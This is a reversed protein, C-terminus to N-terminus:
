VEIQTMLKIEELVGTVRLCEIMGGEFVCAKGRTHVEITLVESTDIDCGTAKIIQHIVEDFTHVNDNFLIARASREIEIDDLTDEETYTLPTGMTM